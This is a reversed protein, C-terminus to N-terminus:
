SLTEVMGNQNVEAWFEPIATNGECLCVRKTGVMQFTNKEVIQYNM